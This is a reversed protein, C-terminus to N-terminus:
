VIVKTTAIFQDQVENNFYQVVSNIFYDIQEDSLNTSYAFPPAKDGTTINIGTHGITVNNKSYTISVSAKGADRVKDDSGVFKDQVLIDDGDVSIPKQIIGSLINAIATNLLRQFSVAGIPCMGPIEWCFNVADQSHIFDDSLSDELDILADKVYMPSRFAVIDGYPSVEKRFFKYAFREHILKGDYVSQKILM